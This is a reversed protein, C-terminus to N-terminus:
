DRRVQLEGRYKYGFNDIFGQIDRHLNEGAPCLLLLSNFGSAEDVAPSAIGKDVLFEDFGPFERDGSENLGDFYVVDIAGQVFFSSNGV